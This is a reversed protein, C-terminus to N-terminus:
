FHINIFIQSVKLLVSSLISCKAKLSESCTKSVLAPIIAPSISDTEEPITYDFDETSSEPFYNSTPISRSTTSTSTTVPDRVFASGSSPSSFSPYKADTQDTTTSKQDVNILSEIDSKMTSTELNIKVTTKPPRQSVISPLILALANPDEPDEIPEYSSIFRDNGSTQDIYIISWKDM